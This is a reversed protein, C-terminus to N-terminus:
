CYWLIRFIIMAKVFINLMM